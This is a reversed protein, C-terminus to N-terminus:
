VRLKLEQIFFIYKKSTPGVCFVRYLYNNNPLWLNTCFLVVSLMALQVPTTMAPAALRPIWLCLGGNKLGVPNSAKLILQFLNSIILQNTYLFIISCVINITIVKTKLQLANYNFM